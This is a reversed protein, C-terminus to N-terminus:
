GYVVKLGNTLPFPKQSFGTLGKWWDYGTDSTLWTTLEPESAGAVAQHAMGPCRTAPQTFLPHASYRALWYLSNRVINTSVLRKVAELFTSFFDTV